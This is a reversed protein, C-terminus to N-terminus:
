RLKKFVLEAITSISKFNNLELDKTDFEFSYNEEIAVILEVVCISDIGYEKLSTDFDIINGIPLLNNDVILDYIERKIVDFEM